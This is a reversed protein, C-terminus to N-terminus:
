LKLEKLTAFGDLRELDVSELAVELGCRCTGSGGHMLSRDAELDWVPGYDRDILVPGFLDQDRYERGDLNRCKLCSKADITSHWIFVYHFLDRTVIASISRM